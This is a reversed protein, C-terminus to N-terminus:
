WAGGDIWRELRNSARDLAVVMAGALAIGAIYLLDGASWHWALVDRTKVVDGM